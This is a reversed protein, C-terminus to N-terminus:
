AHDHHNNGHGDHHHSHAEAEHGLGHRVWGAVKAIRKGLAEGADPASREDPALAVVIGGLTSAIGYEIGVSEPSGFVTNPTTCRELAHVLAAVTSERMSEGAVISAGDYQVDGVTALSPHRSETADAARIDVEMFRVSKAGKAIAEATAMMEDGTFVVIM